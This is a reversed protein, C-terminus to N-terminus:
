RDQEKNPNYPVAKIKGNERYFREPNKFQKAYREAQERSLGSFDSGSCDCILFTGHIIDAIEKEKSKLYCTEVVWGDEGGREAAMYAELRILPDSGDIASGYISYGGMGPQYAKNQSSVAYTRSEESYHETFSDETFVILGSLHEGKAEAERFRECLEGYSLETPVPEVYVARNAPMGNIKGEENCVICVEEEFAYFPEIYGGVVGQLSDLGPQIYAIRSQKGPECIVVRMAAEKIQAQAPDFDVRKFGISDCFYFGPQVPLKKPDILDQASFEVDMDRLQEQSALYATYDTYRTETGNGQRIVGVVPPDDTVEVIDSVSLSRGNYDAPHELNFLKFVDELNSCDVDAEYVRDYLSSNIGETKQFKPLTDLAMFAVKETDRELNIQYIRIKM